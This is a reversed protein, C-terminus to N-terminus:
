ARVSQGSPDNRSIDLPLTKNCLSVQRQPLDALAAAAQSAQLERADVPQSGGGIADLLEPLRSAMEELEAGKAEAGPGGGGGTFLFRLHFRTTAV